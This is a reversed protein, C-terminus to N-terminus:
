RDARGRNARGGCPWGSPAVRRRDPHTGAVARRRPGDHGPRWWRTRWRRRPPGTSSSATCPACALGTLSLSARCCGSWGRSPRCPPRSPTTTRTPSSSSASRRRRRVARRRGPVAAPVRLRHLPGPLRGARARRRAPGAGPLRDRRQPHPGAARGAAGLRQRGPRLSGAGAIVGAARVRGAFEDFPVFWAPSYLM